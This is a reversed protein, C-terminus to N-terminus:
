LPLQVMLPLPKSHRVQSPTRVVGQWGGRGDSAQTVAARGARDLTLQAKSPAPTIAASSDSCGCTLVWPHLQTCVM